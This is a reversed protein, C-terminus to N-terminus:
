TETATMNLISLKELLIVAFASFCKDHRSSDNTSVMQDGATKMIVGKKLLLRVTQTQVWM